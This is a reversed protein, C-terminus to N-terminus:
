WSDEDWWVPGDVWIQDRAQKRYPANFEEDLGAMFAAEDVEVEHDVDHAVIVFAPFGRDKDAARKSPLAKYHHINGDM